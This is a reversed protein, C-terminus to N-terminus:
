KGIKYLHKETRILLADGDVAYSALTREGLKNVSVSDFTTGAKLVTGTGDEDLLYVHGAAYLPCASYKGAVREHWHVKGTKADLCSAIGADSVLYLEDGVVLPSPNHPADQKTKWAIKATYSDGTSEVKIAMFTPSDYGTSLYILGHAFVPRPVVSYGDYTLAWLEKGTEPDLGNVVDSGASIVTPRGAVTAILPTSFSFVKKAPQSRKAEWAVKGTMKDFAVVERRGVGDISLYVKDQYVVPSGGNGHVPKYELERNTWVVSGDSTKLCATGQHGFHVYVRDGDVAPTPSAHSNKSHIAPSTKGDQKFVEVDWITKGTKADLCLTRLSQDPSKGEGQPVATTLYIKGGVVVPSSWGKGPIAIKWAVNKEPSWETPLSKASSLGQGTPGRFEPWDAWAGAPMAVVVFAIWVFRTM